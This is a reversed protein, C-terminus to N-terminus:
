RKGRRAVKESFSPCAGILTKQQLKAALCHWPLQFTQVNTQYGKLQTSFLRFVVASHSRVNAEAVVVVGGGFCAQLVTSKIKNKTACRLFTADAGGIELLAVNRRDHTEIWVPEEKNRM